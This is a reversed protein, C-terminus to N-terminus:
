LREYKHAWWVVDDDHLRFKQFVEPDDTPVNVWVGWTEPKKDFKSFWKMSHASHGESKLAAVAKDCISITIDM